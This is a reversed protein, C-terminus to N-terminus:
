KVSLGAGTSKCHHVNVVILVSSHLNAALAPHFPVQASRTKGISCTNAM